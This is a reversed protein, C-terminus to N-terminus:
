WHRKCSKHRFKDPDIKILLMLGNNHKLILEQLLLDMHDQDEGKPLLVPDIAMDKIHNAMDVKNHRPHVLIGAVPLLVQIGGKLLLPEPGKAMDKNHNAM